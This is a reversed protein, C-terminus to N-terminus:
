QQVETFMVQGELVKSADYIFQAMRSRPVHVTKIKFGRLYGHTEQEKSTKEYTMVIGMRLLAGHQAHNLLFLDREHRGYGVWELEVQDAIQQKVHKGKVPTKAEQVAMQVQEGRLAKVENQLEVVASQLQRIDQNKRDWYPSFRRVMENHIKNMTKKKIKM